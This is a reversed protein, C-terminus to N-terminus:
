LGSFFMNETGIFLHIFLSLMHLFFFNLLSPSPIPPSIIIQSAVKHVQSGDPDKVYLIKNLERLGSFFM